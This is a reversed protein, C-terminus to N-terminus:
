MSVIISNVNWEEKAEALLEKGIQCAQLESPESGIEVCDNDDVFFISHDMVGLEGEELEDQSYVITEEDLEIIDPSKSLLEDRKHLLCGGTCAIRHGSPLTFREQIINGGVDESLMRSEDVYSKFEEHSMECACSGSYGEFETTDFIM